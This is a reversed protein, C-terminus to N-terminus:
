RCCHVSQRSRELGIVRYAAPSFNARTLPALCCLEDGAAHGPNREVFFRVHPDRLREPTIDAVGERLHYQNAHARILSAASDYEDPYKDLALADITKQIRPPTAVDYRPYFEHFFVPLFRYTKYGQAILFWYLEQDPSQEILSLALQGWVQTLAQDGWYRRDIITDGSFLAKVPRDEVVVDLLLQTSFGRLDNTQPDLVQIVWQKESLDAEFAAPCVNKYHRDMLALMQRQEDSSLGAVRALQRILKM